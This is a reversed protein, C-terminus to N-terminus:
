RFFTRIKEVRKRNVGFDSRGLRSASRVHVLKNAPDFLFEVDDVFQFIRSRFEIHWYADEEVVFTADGAALVAQRLRAKAQAIDGTWSLPLVRRSM